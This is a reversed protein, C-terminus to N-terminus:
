HVEAEAGVPAMRILNTIFDTGADVRRTRLDGIPMPRMAERIEDDDPFPFWDPPKFEKYDTVFLKPEIGYLEAANTGLMKIMRDEPVGAKGMLEIAEWADEADHHYMDSAWITVDHFYEHMEFVLTEDSEFSIKCQQHFAESPLRTGRHAREAGYRKFAADCADLVFPLWTASSEFITMKIRPHRDLFGSLVVFATWTVAEFQFGAVQSDVGALHVIEGPSYLTGNTNSPFPSHGSPFTHMGVVLGTEEIASWLPEYSPHNPYRGLADIPRIAVVPFGRDAIRRIERVALIPDQVAIVGCPYLRDPYAQCYDYVWDNYARAVVAAAHANEVFPLYANIMTPIVLVQDIGMYEMDSIRAHPDRVGKHDMFEMQEATLAMSAMRRQLARQVGKDFGPGRISGAAGAMQYGPTAWMNRKGNLIGQSGMEEDQFYYDRLLDRERDSVYNRFLHPMEVVHADCDFVPFSKRVVLV